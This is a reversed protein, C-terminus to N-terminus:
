ATTREIQFRVSLGAREALGLLHLIGAFFISFCGHPGQANNNKPSSAPRGGEEM